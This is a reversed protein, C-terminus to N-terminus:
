DLENLAKLFCLHIHDSIGFAAIMWEAGALM